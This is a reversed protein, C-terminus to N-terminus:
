RLARDYNEQLEDQEEPTPRDEQTGAATPLQAQLEQIAASALDYYELTQDVHATDGNTKHQTPALQNSQQSPTNGTSSTSPQLEDLNRTYSALSANGLRAKLQLWAEEAAPGNLLGCASAVM